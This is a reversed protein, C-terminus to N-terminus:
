PKPSALQFHFIFHFHDINKSLGHIFSDEEIWKKGLSAKKGWM